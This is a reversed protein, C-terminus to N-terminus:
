GRHVFRIPEGLLPTWAARLDPSLRVPAGTGADVMVVTAAARAYLVQDGEAIPSFV